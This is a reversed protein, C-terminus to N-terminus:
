VVALVGEYAPSPACCTRVDQGERRSSEADLRDAAEAVLALLTDVDGPMAVVPVTRKTHPNSVSPAAQSHTSLLLYAHPPLSGARELLSLGAVLPDGHGVLVVLPYPSVQLAAQALDAEGVGATVYGVESLMGEVTERLLADPEVVLVRTVM